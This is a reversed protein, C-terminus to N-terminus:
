DGLNYGVRFGKPPLFERMEKTTLLIPGSKISGGSLGPRPTVVKEVSM